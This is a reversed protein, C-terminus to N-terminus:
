PTASEQALAAVKADLAAILGDLGKGRLIGSYESKRTALESYSGKLYVDIIRWEGDFQRLLYNIAIKEGDKKVINSKILVSHRPAERESLLEFREGAYDDFRSAYTAITMRTFADVLRARQDRDAKKWYPNTTVRAMFGLNFSEKLVPSLWEYRGDYGLAEAEQMVNVLVAHLAAIVKRPPEQGAEASFAILVGVMLATLAAIPRRFAM